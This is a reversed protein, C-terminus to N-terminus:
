GANNRVHPNRMENQEFAFAESMGRPPPWPQCECRRMRTKGRRGIPGCRLPSRHLPIRMGKIMAGTATRRDRTVRMSQSLDPPGRGVIIRVIDVGYGESRRGCGQLIYALSTCQPGHFVHEIGRLVFDVPRLM